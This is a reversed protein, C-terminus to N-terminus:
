ESQSVRRELRGIRVQHKEVARLARRLKQMWRTLAARETALQERMRVLRQQHRRDSVPLPASRLVRRRATTM